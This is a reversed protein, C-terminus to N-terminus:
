APRKVLRPRWVGLAVNAVCVALLVWLSSAASDFLRQAAAPDLGDIPASSVRRAEAQIPGLFLASGEFIAIGTAAKVWVWGASQFAPTFALSLVGSAVTLLVSPGIIWAGVKAMAVVIPAYAPTGISAPALVLVVVLAAFGGM